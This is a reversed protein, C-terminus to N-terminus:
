LADIKIINSLCEDDIFAHHTLSARILEIRQWNNLAQWAKEYGFDGLVALAIQKAYAPVSYIQLTKCSDCELLSFITESARVVGALDCMSLAFGAEGVALFGPVRRKLVIDNCLLHFDKYASEMGLEQCTPTSPHVGAGLMDEFLLMKGRISNYKVDGWVSRLDNDWKWYKDEEWWVFSNESPDQDGTLVILVDDKAGHTFAGHRDFPIHVSLEVYSGCLNIGLFPEGLPRKSDNFSSVNKQVTLMDEVAGLRKVLMEFTDSLNTNHSDMVPDM